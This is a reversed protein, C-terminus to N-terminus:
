RIYAKPFIGAQAERVLRSLTRRAIVALHHPIVGRREAQKFQDWDLEKVRGNPFIWLDLILDHLEYESDEKKELPTAIDSYYGLVEGEPDYLELISFYEGYFHYKGLSYLVTGSPLLGDNIWSVALRAAIETPLITLTRLRQGDDEIFGEDYIAPPCDYRYYRIIARQM